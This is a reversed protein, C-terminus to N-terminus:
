IHILSLGSDSRGITVTKQDTMYELSKADICLHLFTYYGPLDKSDPSYLFKLQGTENTINYSWEVDHNQKILGESLTVSLLVTLDNQKNFGVSSRKVIRIGYCEETMNTIGRLLMVGTCSVSLPHTVNVTAREALKSDVYLPLLCFLILACLERAMMQVAGSLLLFSCDKNKKVVAIRSSFNTNIKNTM